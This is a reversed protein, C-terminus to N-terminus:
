AVKRYKNNIIKDFFYVAQKRWWYFDHNVDTGWFDFIGNIGANALVKQLRRTSAGTIEEHEGQGCCCIILKDKYQNFQPLKSIYHLPGERQIKLNYKEMIIKELNNYKIIFIEANTM